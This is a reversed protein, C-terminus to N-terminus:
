RGGLLKAAEKLAQVAKGPDSGQELHLRLARRGHAELVEFDGRAQAAFLTGFGYPVGPIPLDEGGGGTVQLFLGTNPGGKHLQGTSHLFRPGFGLTCAQKTADRLAGQVGQFTGALGDDPPLYLQLAIYDGPDALALHAAIWGAPSGAAASGLTGAAKRLVQAHEAGAFLALGQSRLVPEQAPLAGQALLAKTKEKSEAVNPEDFPDIKLVTGMVATAIEWRFFESVIEGPASLKWQLLPHGAEALYSMDHSEGALSLSIFLRDDGYAEKKGAPEGDVPIIGHGHKGTSEAVLQELWAGLPALSKSLLFTLKDAGKEALGGAIAGLRVALNEQLPVRADSALEADMAQGILQEVDLGLLAAPVLGFYSLASYRGGIDAPNLFTRWFGEDAARKQLPSGPDTIAVFNGGEPVKSRFHRYFSDVETTTGSKSSVLFLTKRLDFGRAAERVADPATSDLVRLDLGGERKGLARTFVDPALSSGGMGLLLCHRFKKVAEKGFAAIEKAHEQSFEICHLWGLRDKAVNHAGWLTTDKAWLRPGVKEKAAVALGAQADDKRKGLSERLQSKRAFGQAAARATIAHLLGDLAKSFLDLGQDTLQACVKELDIGLAQLRALQAKAEAAGQGVTDAVKGHENFAHLTAMPLTNVTDKGILPEVYLVDSYAKNKTGTSAWLPRQRTAGKAELAKWRPSAISQLYIQYAEKANAVAIKGLLDRAGKEELLKDVATDVRSVFFSAVSHIQAIPQGKAVREELGSLYADIVQQYVKVSFILTINVSVGAATAERIAPIGEPNAPIKIFLNPRDVAKWFRKAEAVTARTDRAIYPSVELSVFGDRGRLRDFTPRLVDCASRVDNVAIAEYIELPSKGQAILRSLEDDYEDSEVIAKEFISPNATVGQIGDEEAMRSLEGSHILKRGILDLWASQGFENLRAAPKM